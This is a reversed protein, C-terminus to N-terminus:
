TRSDATCTTSSRAAPLGGSETWRDYEDDAYANVVFLDLWGDDDYDIWCLGGGMMAEPEDSVGFHFASQTFDLGVQAAVDQLHVGGFAESRVPAPASSAEPTGRAAVILYRGNALTLEFARSFRAPASRHQVTPPSGSYTAREVTGALTAVVTPPSQGDGPELTVSTREVVYHPVVIPRGKAARIQQWLAALRDGDAGETAGTSTAGAFPTRSSRSIPPRM